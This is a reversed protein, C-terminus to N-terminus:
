KEANLVSKFDEHTLKHISVNWSPIYAGCEPCPVCGCNQTRCPNQCEESRLKKSLESARSPFLRPM